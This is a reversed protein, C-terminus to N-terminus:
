LGYIRFTDRGTLERVAGLTVLRDFLRRAARDSLGAARAAHAPTAADDSLLLAVVRGAGKARLKPQATALAAARRQLDDALAVADRAALALAFAASRPWDLDDPRPRRGAAGRRLAPDGFKTALLPIPPWVGLRGALTVDAAFLGLLEAEARLHAPAAGYIARAAAAAALASGECRLAASHDQPLGMWAGAEALCAVPDKAIALRRWLRHLRGAPGPEGAAYLHEADRLAPEDERLRMVRASAAGARLALRQRLAGGWAPEEALLAALTALAAGACFFCEAEGAEARPTSWGPAALRRLPPPAPTLRKRRARSPAPDIREMGCCLLRRAM